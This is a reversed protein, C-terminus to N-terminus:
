NSTLLETLDSVTLVFVKKSICGLMECITKADCDCSEVGFDYGMQSVLYCLISSLRIKHFDETAKKCALYNFESGLLLKGYQCSFQANQRVINVDLCIPAAFTASDIVTPKKIYRKEKRPTGDTLWVENDFTEPEVGLRLTSLASHQVSYKFPCQPSALWIFHLPNM